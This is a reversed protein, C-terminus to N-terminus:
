KYERRTQKEHSALSKCTFEGHSRFKELQPALLWVTMALIWAVRLFRAHDGKTSVRQRITIALIAEPPDTQSITPTSDLASLTCFVTVAPGQWLDQIVLERVAFM